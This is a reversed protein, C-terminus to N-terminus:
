LWATVHDPEHLNQSPPASDELRAAPRTEQYRLPLCTRVRLSSTAMSAALWLRPGIHGPLSL